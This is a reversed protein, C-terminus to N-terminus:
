VVHLSTGHEKEFMPVIAQFAGRLSPTAAVTLTEAQVDVGAEVIGAIGSMVAITIGITRVRAIVSGRM